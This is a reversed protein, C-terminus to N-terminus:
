PAAPVMRHWVGVAISAQTSAIVRQKLSILNHVGQVGPLHRVIAEAVRGQDWADVEGRLTIWGSSVKVKIHDHPLRPDQGLADAAARAIDTDTQGARGPSRVTIEGAVARVGQVRMAARTADDKEAFSAVSGSLTVIGEGVAVGVAAANVRPERNLAALIERQLDIDAKM